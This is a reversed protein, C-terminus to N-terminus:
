PACRRATPTARSSAPTSWSRGSRRAAARRARRVPRHAPRRHDQHVPRIEQRGRRHVILKDPTIEGGPMRPVVSYTGDQQINALFRDNTDQLTGARRRPHLENGSRPLISAVAPKCIECGRGQRPQRAARRLDQDARDQRHRVAGPAHPRLARLPRQQGGHGASRARRQAARHGAARLRRLRHRGQHLKKLAGVHHLATPSRRASRARPSTTARASRRADPLRRRRPRPEAAASAPLILFERASPCRRHRSLAMQLLTGYDAADGVLMGGLLRKGDDRRGRAEQLRRRRTTPSVPVRPQGAHRWACRRLQGRGRGDAQAQHEHRRRHVRRRQRRALQRRPWARGDRLRARGPRLDPRRWLACEGIPTSTRTAPAAASRRDVIGGRAGVELGCDRALEDRPRIGASFVVMDTDCSAHRRRVDTRHRQRKATSSRWRTRRRICPARRAGRDAGACCAGGGDDVQVAMLRPAFEVVHTELGLDRLANAAKSARAPRRRDGRRRSRARAACAQDGRPRRHHPLRLLRRPRQGADAARVPYSGTALVLKDYRSRRAASVTVKKGRPRDHEVRDGLHLELRQGREFFGHTSWRCITRATKGSFFESLHVRDYAARPEECLVTIDCQRHGGTWAKSFSTGWWAM